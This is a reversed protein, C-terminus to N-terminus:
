AVGPSRASRGGSRAVRRVPTWSRPSAACWPEPMGPRAGPLPCALGRVASTVSAAMPSGRVAVFALVRMAVFFFPPPFPFSFSPEGRRAGILEACAGLRRNPKKRRPTSHSLLKPNLLPSLSPQKGQIQAVHARSGRRSTRAPLQPRRPASSPPGSVCSVPPPRPWPLLRSPRALPFTGPPGRASPSQSPRPAGFRGL